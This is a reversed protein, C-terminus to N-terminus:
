SPMRAAAESSVASAGAPKKQAFRVWFPLRYEQGHIDTLVVYGSYDRREASRSAVITITVAASEGRALSISQASSGVTVGPGEDIQEVRIAFSNQEQLVNTVSLNATLTVGKKRLKRAGFSLSAPSFTASVTAARALDLRGAGASLVGTTSLQDAATFVTNRASSVLASKVQEATWSPHLQKVLAAAGAVHPAAMSTGNQASFGSPDSVGDPNATKLAGSFISVGPATLDPKLANLSSPGRSSFGAIVDPTFAGAARPGISVLADGHLQLWDRLALGASRAVFVSPITTDTVGMTVLQEGGSEPNESADQNYVIVAQAGAAAAANVKDAFFCEGREILAIKGSLSGPPLGSCARGVGDLASVDACPLPGVPATLVDVVGSAAGPVSVLNALPESVPGAGTVTIKAGVFKSNTTAGVTIASPAIGPTGISMEGTDGSNGASVVVILGAAVATEVGRALFDLTSDAESGLSLNAVDFGDAAAEELARAIGATRGGGERGLVRYNGLYARPAVGSIPGLPAPTSLNGAAIGAVHTGHGHEDAATTGASLFSKAVIVKNSTNATDGRPFGPPASFGADSFLPNSIDIGTDLVAIKMGEGAASPGGLGDWYVPAGILPVSSGLTARYEKELEVRKVGALKAIAALDTGPAEVAVANALKRLAANVRLGASVRAARALFSEQEAELQAEYARARPSEFDVRLPRKAVPGAMQERVAVPESELEVIAHVPASSKFAAHLASGGASGDGQAQETRSLAAPGPLALAITAALSVLTSSRRKM